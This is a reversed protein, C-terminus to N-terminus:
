REEVGSQKVDMKRKLERLVDDAVDGLRLWKGKTDLDPPQESVPKIEEGRQPISKRNMAIEDRANSM